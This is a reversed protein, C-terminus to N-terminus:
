KDSNEARRELKEEEEDKRGKKVMKEEKAM